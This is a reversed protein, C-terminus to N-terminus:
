GIGERDYLLLLQAVDGKFAVVEAAKKEGTYTQIYCLDGNKLGPWKVDVTLGVVKSVVGKYKYLPLNELTTMAKIKADKIKQEINEEMIFAM